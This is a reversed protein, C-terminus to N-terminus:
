REGPRRSIEGVSAIEGGDKTVGGDVRFGTANPDRQPGVCM